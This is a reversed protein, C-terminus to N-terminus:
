VLLKELKRKFMEKAPEAQRYIEAYKGFELTHINKIEPKIYIDPMDRKLKEAVIAQGMIRATRFISEYFSPEAHSQLQLIGLVDIAIVYDCDDPLVDYPLPNVAGGDILLRDGLQVPSFIDPLAMSAKISPLLDGSDMIVQEGTWYDAAVAQLPISLDEFHDVRVAKHLYGMFHDADVLGGKGLKPDILEIWKFINFKVLAHALEKRELLFLSDVLERIEKATHGASYLSGLIAGISTGAIRHPKIGLEDFVELILVHALGRAGGGGLALGLKQQGKKSLPVQMNDTTAKNMEKM